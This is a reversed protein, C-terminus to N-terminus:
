VRRTPSTSSSSAASLLLQKTSQDDDDLLRLKDKRGKGKKKKSFCNLRSIIGPM